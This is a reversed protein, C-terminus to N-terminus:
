PIVLLSLTHKSPHKQNPFNDNGTKIINHAIANYINICSLRRRFWIRTDNLKNINTTHAKLSLIHTSTTEMTHLQRQSSM